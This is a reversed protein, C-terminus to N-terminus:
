LSGVSAAIPPKFFLTKTPPSKSNKKKLFCNLQGFSGKASSQHNRQDQELLQTYTYSQFRQQLKTPNRTDAVHPTYCYSYICLLRKIRPLEAIRQCLIKGQLTKKPLIDINKYATKWRYPLVKPRYRIPLNPELLTVKLKSNM